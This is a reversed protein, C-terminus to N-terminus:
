TCCRLKNFDRYTIGIRFISYQFQIKQQPSLRNALELRNLHNLLPNMDRRAREWLTGTVQVVGADAELHGVIIWRIFDNQIQRM